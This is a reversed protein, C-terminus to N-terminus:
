PKQSLLFTPKKIWAEGNLPLTDQSIQTINTQIIIKGSTDKKATKPCVEVIITFKAFNQINASEITLTYVFSGASQAQWTLSSSTGEVFQSGKSFKLYAQNAGTMQIILIQDKQEVMFGDGSQLTQLDAETITASDNPENDNYYTDASDNGGCQTLLPLTLLSPAISAKSLSSLM